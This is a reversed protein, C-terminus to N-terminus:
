SYLVEDEDDGVHSHKYEISEKPIKIEFITGDEYESNVIIQGKFKDKVIDKVLTLGLGRNIDGTKNDFKTSFGPNFIYDIDKKKIGVGNDYVIFCHNSEDSFHKVMITGKRKACEISEISNQILNRLISILTYHHKTYFDGERKFIIDIEKEEASIFKNTSDELIYFIDKLSMKTYEMKNVKLDQIGRIVRIYDKKIEHIDKAISLALNSKEDELEKYLKFAKNMVNEINEINKNMLYIESELSSTLLILKRYREEHEEKMLLLKYHKGLTIILFVFVVRIFAILALLRFVNFVDVDNINEIRILVELFNSVFDCTWIGIIVKTIDKEHRVNLFYFIIGYTIYFFILPYNLEFASKYDLYANLSLISRFIFVVFATVTSTTIININKYNILFIPFFIIAFSIRFNNIFLNIYIQSVLATFVAVFLIKRVKEM